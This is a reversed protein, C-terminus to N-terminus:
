RSVRAAMVITCAARVRVSTDADALLPAARAPLGLSALATAAALREDPSESALDGELWGQVRRDGVTALAFRARRAVASGPQALAELATVADVRAAETTRPVGPSALRALAGVRVEPDEDAAATRVAGLLEPWDLPTMALAQLRTSPSGSEISRALQGIASQTLEPGADEHRLVAAAGDIAGPGRGSALLSGLAVRGGYDWLSPSAWALAIDERLGDDGGTWVDRLRDTAAWDSTPPLVAIARVAETRVIPEPDLRAAEVLPGLDAGDAADRAARAAERRVTPDADVLARLRADRDERRVLARAGVARWRADGDDVFVRAAGLGMEGADLRALAADAGATDHVHMRDALPGDLERACPLLDRVLASADAPSAVRLERGAVAHALSAAEGASLTGASQRAALADHLSSLDGNQAARMAPSSACAAACVAVGLGAAWGRTRMRVWQAFARAM